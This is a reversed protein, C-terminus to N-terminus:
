GNQVQQSNALRFTVTHQFLKDKRFTRETYTTDTIIVPTFIRSGEFRVKVDSSIYLNKLWTSEADTLYRTNVTYTEDLSTNYVTEGRDYQNVSFTTSEYSTNVKNYSQREINVNYDNRKTFAFYDKFGFSNTWSFQIPSFDNCEGEEYDVRVPHWPYIRDTTSTAPDFEYAYPCVYYHTITTDDDFTSQAASITITLYDDTPEIEDTNNVNPGGGTATTNEIDITSGVQSGASDYAYLEFGNIGNFSALPAATDDTWDNIFSLTLQDERSKKVKTIRTDTDFHTPKGDTIAANKVVDYTRDSLVSGYTTVLNATSGFNTMVPVYPSSDWDLTYYNKRGYLISGSVTGTQTYTDTTDAFYGYEIEYSYVPGNGIRLQSTTELASDDNVLQQLANSVDFHTYGVYNPQQRFRYLKTGGSTNITIAHSVPDTAYDSNFTTIVVPGGYPVEWVNPQKTVEITAM